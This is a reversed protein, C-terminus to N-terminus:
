VCEGTGPIFGTSSASSSSSSTVTTTEGSSSSSASSSSSSAGGTGGTGGGGGTNGNDISVQSGCGGVGLSGLLAGTFVELTSLRPKTITRMKSLGGRDLPADMM